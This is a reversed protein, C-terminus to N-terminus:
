ETGSWLGDLIMQEKLAEMWKQTNQNAQETRLHYNTDYFDKSEYLFDSLKGVVTVGEMANFSRRFLDDILEVNEKQDEPVAQLNTCAYSVYIKVGREQYKQYQDELLGLSTTTFYSPDLYVKDGLTEATYNRYFSACGYEDVYDNGYSDRYVDTYSSTCEKTSLWYYYIDFFEPLTRIDVLSVLDYNYELGSWLKRDHNIMQERLMMQSDSSVEPTHFFIDGEELFHTLIQMQAASNIVGNLGMNIVQYESGITEQALQGDLNYWMSCGGYFVIKRTGQAEILIDVKDALCSERRYDYGWPAEAANIHLTSFNECNMFSNDSFTEINDFLTLEKMGCRLFAGDEITKLTNPLIVHTPDCDSFAATGIVTVELGSLQAPIVVTEDSGLYGTIRVTGDELRAWTFDKEDSWEVWQAYLTLEKDPVSVRSGLGVATGSGDPETNWGILTHGDRPSIDQGISTNPRIHESVDYTVEAGDGPGGNTDYYITCFNNSLTLALKAPYKVDELRLYVIGNREETTYAGEYDVSLFNYGDDMVLRFEADAGSRIQLGNNLAKCGKPVTLSVTIYNHDTPQAACGCLLMVALLVIIIRRM